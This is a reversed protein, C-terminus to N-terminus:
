YTGIARDYDGMSQYIAAVTHLIRGEDVAHGTARYTQLARLCNDLAGVYNSAQYYVVGILHLSWALTLSTENPEALEVAEAALAFADDTQGAQHSISALQYLAEGEDASLNEARALVRADLALQRALDPDSARCRAADDLLTRAKKQAATLETTLSKQV